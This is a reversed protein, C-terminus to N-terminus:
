KKTKKNKLYKYLYFPMAIISGLLIFFLVLILFEIIVTVFTGFDGWDPPTCAELSVGLRGWNRMGFFCGNYYVTILFILVLSFMFFFNFLKPHKNIM